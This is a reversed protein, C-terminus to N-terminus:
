KLKKLRAAGPATLSRQFCGRPFRPTFCGVGEPARQRRWKRRLPLFSCSGAHVAPCRGKRNRGGRSSAQGTPPAAPATVPAAPGPRSPAPRPPLAPRPPRSGGIEGEGLAARGPEGSGEPRAPDGEHAPPLAPGPPARHLPLRLLGPRHEHLLLLDERPLHQPEMHAGHLAGLPQLLNGLVGRHLLQLLPAQLVYPAPDGRGTGDRGGPQLQGGHGRPARPHTRDHPHSIAPLPFPPCSGTPLM